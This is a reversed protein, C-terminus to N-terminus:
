SKNILSRLYEEADRGNSEIVSVDSLQYDRKIRNYLKYSLHSEDMYIKIESYYDRDFLGRQAPTFYTGLIAIPTYDPYLTLCAIADFVGEVLICKDTIDQRAYYIPKTKIPPNFYKPVRNKRWLQYYFLKHKYYFPLVVSENDWSSFKLTNLNNMIYPNRNYLDKLHNNNLSLGNIMSLQYRSDNMSLDPTHDEYNDFLKPVKFMFEVSNNFYASTCRHCWGESLDEKIYLKHKHYNYEEICYPCPCEYYHNHNLEINNIEIWKNLDMLRYYFGKKNSYYEEYEIQM